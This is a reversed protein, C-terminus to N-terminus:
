PDESKNPNQIKRPKELKTSDEPLGFTKDQEHAEMNKLYIGGTLMSIGFM